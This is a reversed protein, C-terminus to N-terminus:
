ERRWCVASSTTFLCITGYLPGSMDKNCKTARKGDEKTRSPSICKKPVADRRAEEAEM